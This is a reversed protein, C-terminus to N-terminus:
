SEVVTIEPAEGQLRGVGDRVVVDGPTLGATIEVWGPRRGGINVQVRHAVNGDIRWLFHDRSRSVLSEEPVLFVQRQAGKVTVEMLLGPRLKLEPNELTARALISRSVPDIRSDIATITGQFSQEFAPARSEVVQGLTLFGLLTAPVSFELRMRSLDDLTTLRQGPTVLAGTSVRRLGLVGSFPAIITRDAIRAEIEEIKHRTITALTRSKDLDTQAVQNKRALNELRKVERQADALAAQQERLSAQEADQKLMALVDGKKVHQGDEFSIRTVIQSVSASVDISEWAQLTGLASAESQFAQLNVTYSSVPVADRTTPDSQTSKGDQISFWLGAALAICAGLVLLVNRM